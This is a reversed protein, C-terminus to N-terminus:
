RYNDYLLLVIFNRPQYSRGNAVPWWAVLQALCCIFILTASGTQHTDSVNGTSGNQLCVWTSPLWMKKRCIIPPPLFKASGSIRRHSPLRGRLTISRNLEFSVDFYLSADLNMVYKFHRNNIIRGFSDSTQPDDGYFSTLTNKCHEVLPGQIENIIRCFYGANLLFM